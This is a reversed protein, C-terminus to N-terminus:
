DTDQKQPCYEPFITAITGDKNRNASKAIELRVQKLKGMERAFVCARECLDDHECLERHEAATNIQSERMCVCKLPLYFDGQRLSKVKGIQEEFPDM